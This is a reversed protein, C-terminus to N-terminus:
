GRVESLIPTGLTDGHSESSMAAAFYRTGTASSETEPRKRKELNGGPAVCVRTLTGPQRRADHDLDLDLIHAHGRDSRPSRPSGVELLEEHAMSRSVLRSSKTAYEKKSGSSAVTEARHRQFSM